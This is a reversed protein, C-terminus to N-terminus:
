RKKLREAEAVLKSFPIELANALAYSVDVTPSYLGREIEGVYTQSVGSLKSLQNQSLSKALRHKKLVAALATSFDSNVSGM